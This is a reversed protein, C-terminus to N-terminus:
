EDKNGCLGCLNTYYETRDVGPVDTCDWEWPLPVHTTTAQEPCTTQTYRAAYVKSAPYRKPDCFWRSCPDDDMTDVHPLNPSPELFKWNGHEDYVEVWNHNGQNPDGYWAPTGVVRAAIGVARLANSFLISTGTCSAYGFAITSMPDFILPTQSSKFYIPNGPRGLKTWLVTNVWTVVSSVNGNGNVNAQGHTKYLETDTFNLIDVLLPRWNTRAENFNAYNLVYNRFIDLPLDDTWPYLVKADLALTVTPGVIGNSLGDADDDDDDGDDPSPFGMTQQFPIDMAMLNDQLYQLCDQEAESRTQYQCCPVTTTTITTTTTPKTTTVTVHARRRGFAPLTRLEETPPCKWAIHTANSRCSSASSAEVPSRFCFFSILVRKSLFTM